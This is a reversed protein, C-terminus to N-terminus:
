SGFQREFQVCDLTPPHSSPAVFPVLRVLASPCSDLPWVASAVDLAQAAAEADLVRERPESGLPEPLEEMPLRVDGGEPRQGARLGHLHDLGPQLGDVEGAPLDGGVGVEGPVGVGVLAQVRGVARRREDLPM